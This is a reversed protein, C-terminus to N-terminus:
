DKRRDSSNGKNKSLYAVIATLGCLFILTWTTKVWKPHQIVCALIKFCVSGRKLLWATWSLHWSCISKHMYLNHPDHHARLLPLPVLWTAAAVFVRMEITVMTCPSDSLVSILLLSGRGLASHFDWDKGSKDQHSRGDEGEKVGWGQHSKDEM